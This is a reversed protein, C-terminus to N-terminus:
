NSAAMGEGRPDAAGEFRIIGREENYILRIGSANGIGRNVVDHGRAKLAQQVEPSVDREALLYNPEAFSIKPAAIAEAMNLIP